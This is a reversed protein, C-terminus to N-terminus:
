SITRHPPIGDMMKRTIIDQGVPAAPIAQVLVIGYEIDLGDIRNGANLAEHAPLAPICYEPVVQYVVAPRRPADRSSFAGFVAQHFVQQDLVVTKDVVFSADNEFGLDASETM